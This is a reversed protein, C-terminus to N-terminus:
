RSPYSISIPYGVCEQKAKFADLHAGGEGQFEALTLGSKKCGISRWSLQSVANPVRCRRHSECENEKLVTHLLEPMGLEDCHGVVGGFNM